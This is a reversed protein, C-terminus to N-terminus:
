GDLQWRMEQPQPLAPDTYIAQKWVLAQYLSRMLHFRLANSTPPMHELKNVKFFLAIRVEDTTDVQDFNYMRCVFKEADHLKLDTLECEGLTPLLNWHQQFKCWTAQKSKGFFYSTRYCGTLSHYPLLAPVSNESLTDYTERTSISRYKATGAMLWLNNSQVHDCHAILLLLVDTERASM